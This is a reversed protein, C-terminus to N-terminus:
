ICSVGGGETIVEQAFSGLLSTIKGHKGLSFMYINRSHLLDDSFQAVPPCSNLCRTHSWSNQSPRHSLLVIAFAYM